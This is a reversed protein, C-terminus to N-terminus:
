LHAFILFVYLSYVQSFLIALVYRYGNRAQIVLPVLSHCCILSLDHHAPLSLYFTREQDQYVLEHM